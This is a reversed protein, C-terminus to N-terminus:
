QLLQGAGSGRVMGGGARTHQKLLAAAVARAVLASGAPTFHTFDYYNEFTPPLLPRLDLLDVGLEDAIGAARANVLGMLHNVVELSYYVDIPQNWADGMGGQWCRVAEEPTYQKEFWPQRVVLVRDAHREARELIHRFHHEFRDLIAAPDPISTRMEKAAARMQRAAVVWTLTREKVPHWWLRRLRRALETTAWQKPKWGFPQEPYCAFPESATVSSPPLELPAGAALWQFVDNGGIMIVIAALHPYQPLMQQLMLDLHRSAVGSRGISGVHVRRAGLVRLSEASGLLRELVGPWSTPQDLALCEVSSGGAVLVRFLGGENGRVESGREGDANIEIRADPEMQPFVRLDQRMQYRQGPPWMYYRSRRRIWWRSGLEAAAALVAGVLMVKEISITM